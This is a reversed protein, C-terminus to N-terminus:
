YIKVYQSKDKGLYHEISKTRGKNMAFWNHSMFDQLEKTRGRVDSVYSVFLDLNQSNRMWVRGVSFDGSCVIEM